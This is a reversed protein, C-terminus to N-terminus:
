SRERRWKLGAIVVQKRRGHGSAKLARDADVTRADLPVDLNDLLDAVQRTGDPWLGDTLTHHLQPEVARRINVEAPVWPIRTHTRKLNIGDDVEVLQFVVDVDDAKASSGRQGMTPDKGGHDLRLLAIGAAKLRRGTHRYFARYTDAKDEDGSVVRAMTDLVVLEANWRKAIAELELGGLETDLPTLAVLQYYHLHSLDTDPGYGLDSLRERLDAETMEQDIYVVDVPPTPRQGLVPRGTARAAVADLTVLSKGAKPKSYVAVQRGKPVIPEIFWEQEPTEAAWFTDWDIPDVYSALDEIGAGATEGGPQNPVEAVVQDYKATWPETSTM